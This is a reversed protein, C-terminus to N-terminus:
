YSVCRRATERGCTLKRKDKFYTGLSQVSCNNWVLPTFKRPMLKSPYPHRSLNNTGKLNKFDLEDYKLESCVNKFAGFETAAQARWSGVTPRLYCPFPFLSTLFPFSPRPFLPLIFHFLPSSSLSLHSLFGPKRYPKRGQIGNSLSRCHICAPIGPMM